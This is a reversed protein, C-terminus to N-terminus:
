QEKLFKEIQYITDIPTSTGSTILVRHYKKLDVHILDEVKNIMLCDSNNFYEKSIMYLKNTNSSKESGVVLVLDYNKDSNKLALQRARTADCIEDSILAKPIHNLIDNHIDSIELFSLTTQNVIIPQDFKVKQYDFSSNIDYLIVQDSVSLSAITEPHNKKGIYIVGRDLNNEILEINKKVKVCTTDYFTIGKKNLIDEYKKPHGHASFIIVQNSTFNELLKIPDNGIEVIKIGYTKLNEIVLENHVLEGFLIVEKNLNDDKIKKAMEIAQIVGFCFGIPKLLKTEM